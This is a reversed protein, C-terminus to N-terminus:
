IKIIIWKVMHQISDLTEQAAEQSISDPSCYRMVAQWKVAIDWHSKLDHNSSVENHLGALILLRNVDHVTFSKNDAEQNYGGISVSKHVPPYENWGLKLAIYRKLVLELAYGALYVANENGEYTEGKFDYGKHELLAKASLFKSRAVELLDEPTLNKRSILASWDM